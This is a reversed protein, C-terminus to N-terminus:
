GQIKQSSTCPLINRRHALVGHNPHALCRAHQCLMVPCPYFTSTLGYSWGTDHQALRQPNVYRQPEIIARGNVYVGHRAPADARQNDGADTRQNDGRLYWSSAYGSGSRSCIAKMCDPRTSSSPSLATSITLSVLWSLRTRWNIPFQVRIM